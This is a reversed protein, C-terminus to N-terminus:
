HEELKFSTIGESITSIGRTEMINIIADLKEIKLFEKGIYAEYHNAMYLIMEKIKTDMRNM